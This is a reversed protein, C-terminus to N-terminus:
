LYSVKMGIGVTRKLKDWGAGTLRGLRDKVDRRSFAVILGMLFLVFRLLSMPNQSVQETMSKVLQQLASLVAASRKYISTNTTKGASRTPPSRSPKPQVAKVPKQTGKPPAPQFKPADLLARPQDIGYDQESDSRHHTTSTEQRVTEMSDPRTEEAPSPEQETLEDERPLADEFQDQGRNDEDELNQLTQLFEERIEEDLLSSMNIFDRAYNWEGTHPLVHLTYLEIIRVRAHIDRPTDTGGSQSTQGGRLTHSGNVGGFRDTLDLSPQSSASLYSELNRQNGAQSTSQALLLSALNFVVDADVNGEMGCYGINVVDDWITGDQAKAVLKRWERGGFKTKGEEPGLGAVANLLTLYFSWVKIRWKQNARTIPAVDATAEDIHTGDQPHPLTILPEIAALAEPFRRTVFLAEAQKYVKSIESKVKRPSSISGVSSGLLVSTSLAQETPDVLATSSGNM